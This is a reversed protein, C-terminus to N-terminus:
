LLANTKSLSEMVSGGSPYLNGIIVQRKLINLQQQGERIAAEMEGRQVCSYFYMM